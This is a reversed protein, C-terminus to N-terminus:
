TAGVAEDAESLAVKLQRWVDPAVRDQDMEGVLSRMRQDRRVAGAVRKDFNDPYYRLLWLLPGHGLDRLEYATAPSDLALEMFRWFTEPEQMALDEIQQSAQFYDDGGEHRRYVALLATLWRETVREGKLTWKPKSRPRQRATMNWRCQPAVVPNEM